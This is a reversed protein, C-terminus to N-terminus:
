ELFFVGIDAHFDIFKFTLVIKGIDETKEAIEIGGIRISQFEEM